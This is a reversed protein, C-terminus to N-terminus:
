FVHNIRLIIFLIIFCVYFLGCSSYFFGTKKRRFVYANSNGKHSLPNLIWSTDTLIHTQDGAENLPNFIWYQWLSCRLDFISSPDLTATATPYTQVAARIQGSARFSGYAVPTARFLILFFSFLFVYTPLLKLWLSTTAATFAYMIVQYTIERKLSRM